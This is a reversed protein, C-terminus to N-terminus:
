ICISCSQIVTCIIKPISHPLYRSPFPTLPRTQVAIPLVAIIHWYFITFFENYEALLGVMVGCLGM